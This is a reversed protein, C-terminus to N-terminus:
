QPPAWGPAAQGNADLGEPQKGTVNTNKLSVVYAVVDMVKRAGLNPKWSPMGKALVGESVTKYIETPKGGHIWYADTLNAGIQGQGQALHCVVCNQEYTQQGSSKHEPDSAMALFSEDTLSAALKEDRSRAEGEFKELAQQYTATSSLGSEISHYYFWYGLAFFITIFFTFLWWMPLPNNFEVIGDYEHADAMQPDSKFDYSSM